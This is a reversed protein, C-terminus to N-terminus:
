MRFLYSLKVFFADNQRYRTETFQDLRLADPTSTSGYGAYFVTGPSPQYALLWDIRFDNARFGALPSFSGTASRFLLPGQTRSEDILSLRSTTEYQGVVRFFLPRAIQYETKVRTIRSARVWSGDSLRNYSQLMFEPSIRLKDSPRILASVDLLNIFSTAWEDFNEDHGWVYLVNASFQQWAPTAATIVWDRNPLRPTGTFPVTDGGFAPPRAVYVGQFLNPDYGFTELLLAGGVSWGGRLGFNVNFHLKKEIADKGDMFRQYKWLLDYMPNFTFSEIARGREAFWTFRQDVNMHALGPRSIFGAGATFASDMGTLTYTAGYKKGNRRLVAGWLPALHVGTSDVTRSGAGQLTLNYLRGLVIFADADAVRNSYREDERDTYTFGLRSQANLDRQARLINYVPGRGGQGTAPNYALSTNRDDVASLFAVTTGSVKGTVKAAFVPQQIRRTYVLNSPTAFGEMGDLFFPRKEPFYLAQRPDYVFQGADSEVQSFDPHMTANLTLNNTIGWRVNGGVQPSEPNYQWRADPAAAVAPAGPTRQTVEPNVDLVLGRHLDRLGDLTGGQGLFSASAVRVPTWTDVFGSHQVHRIVNVGWSQVSDPQYHLTKFPIRVEVEYGWPTLRGKSEFVFDQSLDPTPLAQVGNGFSGSGKQSGTEVITGDMQVGLPNVGFVLAQHADNYPSLLLQVNDDADIHDRDALTAHATGHSEFARIGFYIATPSYWVLVETSDAAPIGDVPVVQSFGSLVAARQWAPEALAGDVTISADLRPPRAHVQGSRGNFVISPDGPLLTLLLPLALSLM